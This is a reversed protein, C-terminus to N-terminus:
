APRPSQAILFEAAAHWPVGTKPVNIHGRHVVCSAGSRVALQSCYAVAETGATAGEALFQAKASSVFWWSWRRIQVEPLGLARLLRIYRVLLGRDVVPRVRGQRWAEFVAACAPDIWVGGVLDPALVVLLGPATSSSAGEIM